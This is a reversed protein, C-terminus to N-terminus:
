KWLEYPPELGRKLAVLSTEVRKLFKIKWERKETGGEKLTNPPSEHLGRMDYDLVRVDKCM